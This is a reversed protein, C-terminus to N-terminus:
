LNERVRKLVKVRGRNRFNVSAPKGHTGTQTDIAISTVAYEIFAFYEHEAPSDVYELNIPLCFSFM